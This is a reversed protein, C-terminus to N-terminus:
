EFSRPEGVNNRIERATLEARKHPRIGIQWWKPQEASSRCLLSRDKHLKTKRDDIRHGYLLHIIFIDNTETSALCVLDIARRDENFGCNIQSCFVFFIM